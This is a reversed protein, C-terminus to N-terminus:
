VPVQGLTINFIATVLFLVLATLVAVGIFNLVVGTRSMRPITVWGNGFVIANPPTAVPLMFVCSASLTAPIMLLFPHQGLDIAAAALIPLLLLFLALGLFLGDLQRLTYPRKSAPQVVISGDSEEAM